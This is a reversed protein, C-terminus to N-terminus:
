ENPPVAAAAAAGADMKQSSKQSVIQSQMSSRRVATYNPGAMAQSTPRSNSGKTSLNDGGGGGKTPSNLPSGPPNASVFKEKAAARLTDIRGQAIPMPRAMKALGSRDEEFAFTTVTNDQTFQKNKSSSYVLFPDVSPLYEETGIVKFLLPIEFSSSVAIADAKIAVWFDKATEYKDGKIFDKYGKILALGYRYLVKIGELLYCDVIRLVQQEPLLEVFLDVFMMNLYGDDLAGIRSLSVATQPMYEKLMERFTSNVIFIGEYTPEVFKTPRDLIDQIILYTLDIRRMEKVILRILPNLFTTDVGKKNKLFYCLNKSVSDILEVEDTPQYKSMSVHDLLPEAQEVSLAEAVKTIDPRDTVILASLDSDATAGDIYKHLAPLMPWWYQRTEAFRLGERCTQKLAAYEIPVRRGSAM